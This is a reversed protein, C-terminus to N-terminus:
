ANVIRMLRHSKWNKGKSALGLVLTSLVYMAPDKAGGVEQNGSTLCPCYRLGNDNSRHLIFELSNRLSKKQLPCESISAKSYLGAKRDQFNM